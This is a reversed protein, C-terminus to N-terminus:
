RLDLKRFQQHRMSISLKALSPFVSRRAPTILPAVRIKQPGIRRRSVREDIHGTDLRAHSNQIQANGPALGDLGGFAHPGSPAVYHGGVDRGGHELLTRWLADAAPKCFM